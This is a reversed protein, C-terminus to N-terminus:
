VGTKCEKLFDDFKRFRLKRKQLQRIERLDEADQLRELMERYVNIDLIVARPKGSRVIYEPTKRLAKMRVGKM